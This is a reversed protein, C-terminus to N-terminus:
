SGGMLVSSCWLAYTPYPTALLYLKSFFTTNRLTPPSPKTLYVRESILPLAGDPLTLHKSLTPLKIHSLHYPLARPNPLTPYPISFDPHPSSHFLASHMTDETRQGRDETRRRRKHVIYDTILGRDETRYM